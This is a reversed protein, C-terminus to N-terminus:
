ALRSALRNGGSRSRTTAPVNPAPHSRSSAAHDSRKCRAFASVSRRLRLRERDKHRLDIARFGLGYRFCETSGRDLRVFDRFVAPAKRAHRRALAPFCEAADAGSPWSARLISLMSLVPGRRPSPDRPPRAQFIEGDNAPIAAMAEWGFRARGRRKRKKGA